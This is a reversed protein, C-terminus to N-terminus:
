AECSLTGTGACGSRPRRRNRRITITAQKVRTATTGLIANRNTQFTPCQSRRLILPARKTAAENTVGRGERPINFHHPLVLSAPTHRITTVGYNWKEM